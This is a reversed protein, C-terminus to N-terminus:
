HILFVLVIPLASILATIGLSWLAGTALATKGQHEWERIKRLMRIIGITYVIGVLALGMIVAIVTIQQQIIFGASSTLHRVLITLLLIAVITLVLWALRTFHVFVIHRIYSSEEQKEISISTNNENIIQDM